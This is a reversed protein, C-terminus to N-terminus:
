IAECTSVKKKSAGAWCGTRIPIWVIAGTDTLLCLTSLDEHSSKVCQSSLRDLSHRIMQPSLAKLSVVPVKCDM